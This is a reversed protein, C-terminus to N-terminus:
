GRPSRRLIWFAKLANLFIKKLRQLPKQITRDLRVM